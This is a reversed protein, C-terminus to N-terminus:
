HVYSLMSGSAGTDDSGGQPGDVVEGVKAWQGSTWQYAVAVNNENVLQLFGEHKGANPHLVVYM